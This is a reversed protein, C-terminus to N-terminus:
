RLVAVKGYATGEGGLGRAAVLYVGSPVAAGTADRGDWRATGGAGDLQAVLRGDLTLIRVDTRAVLGSILVGEAHQSPRFPAPFVRLDEAAAVPATADADYSLVGRDTAFYVRGSAADVAVDVINDSYLPSTAETFRQLVVNREPDVLLAGTRTGFWLRGAPDEAIANVAFDRLFFSTSDGEGTIPWQPTVLAPDGGFASGPAAVVGVGRETGIWLRGGGDEAVAHALDNPMGVGTGLQGSFHTARDDSPDQPSSGTSVVAVGRGTSLGSTARLTLWKQGFRDIYVGDPTTSAPMGEPVALATWTGDPDRVHLPANTATNVVWLRGEGDTVADPAIVYSSAGPDFDVLSSNHERYNIASGDPLIHTLGGGFTGSYFSGDAAAHASLFGQEGVRLDLPRSDFVHWGEGDLRSIGAFAVGGVVTRRHALWLAGDPGVDLASTVNSFPGSPNVRNEAPIPLAVTGGGGGFSPARFLGQARDGIWVTGDDGVDFATLADFGEPQYTTFTGSPDVTVIDRSRLMLLQPGIVALDRVARGVGVPEWGGGAVRVYTDAAPLNVTTRMGTTDAAAVVRGEHYALRRFPVAVSDPFQPTRLRLEVTWATPQQLGPGLRARVVGEATALWLATTGVDPGDPVPAVLADYVPTAAPLAGLRTYADRVVGEVPDFVVLGFDTAIWLSDGRVIVRNIARRGYQETRAIDFFSRVGGDDGIRDLAGTEYGVWTSARAGDVALARAGVGLLGDVTTYREVEGSAPTYAFVGGTTAAWVTGGSADLALVEGLSPYARWTGPVAPGGPQALAVAPAVALLFAGVARSTLSRMRM